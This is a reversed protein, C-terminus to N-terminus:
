GVRWCDGFCTGPNISFTIGDVAKLMGYHKRLLGGMSIPFHKTVNQAELLSM